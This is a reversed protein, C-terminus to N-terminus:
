EGPEASDDLAAPGTLLIRLLEGQHTAGTKSLVSKLHNRGTEYAIGLEKSAMPLDQGRMLVSALRAEAPTLGYLGRLTHQVGSAPREPDSVFVGALGAHHRVEFQAPSVPTVLVSLARRHGHRRVAMVRGPSMGEGRSTDAAAAVIKELERTARASGATLSGRNASLGDEDRLLAEAVRNAFRIVCDRSVLMVGVPLANLSTEMAQQAMHQEAILDHLELVRQFHPVLQQFLRRDAEEYSGAKWSRQLSFMASYRQNEAITMGLSYFSDTHRAFDSCFETKRFERDPVIEHSLVVEGPEFMGHPLGREVWPNIRSYYREFRARVDTDLNRSVDLNQREDAKNYHHLTANDSGTLPLFADLFVEWRHPHGVTDYLLSVLRLVRDANYNKREGM